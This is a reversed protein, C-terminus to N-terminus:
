LFHHCYLVLQDQQVGLGVHGGHVLLVELHLLGEHHLQLVQYHQVLHVVLVWQVVQIERLLQLVLVLPLLHFLLFLRLSLGVQFGLLSLHFLVPLVMQGM